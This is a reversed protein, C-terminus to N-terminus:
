HLIATHTEIRVSFHRYNWTYQPSKTLRLLLGALLHNRDRQDPYCLSYIMCMFHAKVQNTRLDVNRTKILETCFCDHIKKQKIYPQWQNSLNLIKVIPNQSMRCLRADTRYRSGIWWGGSHVWGWGLWLTQPGDPGAIGWSRSRQWCPYWLRHPILTLISNWFISILIYSIRWFQTGLFM